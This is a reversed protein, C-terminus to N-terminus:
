LTADARRQLAGELRGIEQYTKVTLRRGDRKNWLELLAHQLLPLAGAQNRVDRLLLDAPGGELEGGVLHM